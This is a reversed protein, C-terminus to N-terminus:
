EPWPEPVQRKEAVIRMLIRMAYDPKTTGYELSQVTSLSVRLEEAAEKQYLGVTARWKSFETKGGDLRKLRETPQRRVKKKLNM